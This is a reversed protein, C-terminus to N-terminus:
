PFWIGMLHTHAHCIMWCYCKKEQQSQNEFKLWIELQSNFVFVWNWKFPFDIRKSSVAGCVFNEKKKNWIWQKRLLCDSEINVWLFFFFIQSHTKKLKGWNTRCFFRKKSSCIILLQKLPFNKIAIKMPILDLM